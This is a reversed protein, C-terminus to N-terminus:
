AALLLPRSNGEPIDESADEAVRELLAGPEIHLVRALADLTDLDARRTKNAWIGWVTNYALGTAEALKRASWREPEAIDRLRWRVAM